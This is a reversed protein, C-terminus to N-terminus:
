DELAEQQWKPKTQSREIVSLFLRTVHAALMDVGPVSPDQASVIERTVPDYKFGKVEKRSDPALGAAIMGNSVVISATLM